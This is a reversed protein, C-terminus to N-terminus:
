LKYFPERINRCFLRRTDHVIRPFDLLFIVGFFSLMFLISVSGIAVAGKAEVINTQKFKKSKKLDLPTRTSGNTGVDPIRTRCTCLTCRDVASTLSMLIPNFNSSLPALITTTTSLPSLSTLSPTSVGIIPPTTSTSTVIVSSTIIPIVVTTPTSISVPTSASPTSPIMATQQSITPSIKSSTDLTGTTLTGNSSSSTSPTSPVTATQQSITPSIKSSTDLTGTTLTGNSSSSTSPTSPVTATQQSITPSIKSSTDLTGTTLTGNSSSSTSPTSPVTATQQSITPSIKSSTDLTGTTLTGNSSSSTSPTSPVTATPQVLTTPTKSSTDLTNNTLIGESYSSTPSTANITSNEISVAQCQLDEGTLLGSESCSRSTNGSLVSYGRDCAFTVNDGYHLYESSSYVLHGNTVNPFNCKIESCVIDKGIWVGNSDCIKTGNGATRFFGPLCTYVIAQGLYGGVNTMGTTNWIAPPSGCVKALCVIDIGKWYGQSICTKRNEGGAQLFGEVCTYVVTQDLYGSEVVPNVTSSQVQQPAKKCVIKRCLTDSFGDWGGSTNCVLIGGNAAEVYDYLCDYAITDGPLFLGGARPHYDKLFGNKVTLGQCNVEEAATVNAVVGLIVIICLLVGWSVHLPRRRVLTKSELDTRNSETGFTKVATKPM